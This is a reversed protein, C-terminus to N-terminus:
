REYKLGGKVRYGVHGFHGDDLLYAADNHCKREAHEGMFMWNEPSYVNETYRYRNFLNYRQMYADSISYVRKVVHVNGHSDAYQNRDLFEVCRGHSHTEVGTEFDEKAIMYGRLYMKVCEPITARIRTIVVNGDDYHIKITRMPLLNNSM